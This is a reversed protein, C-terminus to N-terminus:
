LQCHGSWSTLSPRRWGGAHCPRSRVREARLVMSMVIKVPCLALSLPSRSRASSRICSAASRWTHQVLYAASPPRQSCQDLPGYRQLPIVAGRYPSPEALSDFNWRFNKCLHSRSVEPMYILSISFMGVNQLRRTGHRLLGGALYLM